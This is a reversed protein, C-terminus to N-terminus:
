SKPLVSDNFFYSIATYLFDGGDNWYIRFFEVNLGNLGPSKGFPLSQLALFVENKTVSSTLMDGESASIHPLDDQLANFIELFSFNSPETWLNSFFNVFVQSVDKKILLLTIMYILLVLFLIIIIGFVFLTISFTLIIIVMTFRHLGLEKLGNLLIRGTFPQFDIKFCLSTRLPFTMTIVQAMM